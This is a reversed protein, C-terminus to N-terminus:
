RVLLTVLLHTPLAAGTPHGSFFKSQTLEVIFPHHSAKKICDSMEIVVEVKGAKPSLIREVKDGLDACAPDNNSPMRLITNKASEPAQVPFQEKQIFLEFQMRASAFKGKETNAEGPPSHPM